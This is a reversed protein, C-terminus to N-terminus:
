GFGHAQALWELTSNNANFPAEPEISASGFLEVGLRFAGDRLPVYGGIAYRWDNGVIFGDNTLVSYPRLLFGTNVDSYFSKFDYEAALGLYGSATGEGAWALEDGTPAMVAANAGLRFTRAENRIIVERMPTQETNMRWLWGFVFTLLGVTVIVAIWIRLYLPFRWRANWSTM